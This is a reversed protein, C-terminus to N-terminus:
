LPAAPEREEGALREQGPEKGEMLGARPVALEQRRLVEEPGPPQRPPLLRRDEESDVVEGRRRANGWTPQIQVQLTGRPDVKPSVFCLTTLLPSASPEEGQLVTPGYKYRM